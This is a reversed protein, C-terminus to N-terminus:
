REMWKLFSRNIMEELIIMNDGGELKIFQDNENAWILCPAATRNSFLAADKSHSLLKNICDIRYFEGRKKEGLSFIDLENWGSYTTSSINWNFQSILQTLYTTKSNRGTSNILHKISSFLHMTQQPNCPCFWLSFWCRLPYNYLCFPKIKNVHAVLSLSFKKYM